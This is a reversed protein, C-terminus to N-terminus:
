GGGSREGPLIVVHVGDGRHDDATSRHRSPLARHQAGHYSHQEKGHDGVGEIEQSYRYEDQVNDLAQYNEHTTPM